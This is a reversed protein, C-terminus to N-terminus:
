LPQPWAAPAGEEERQGGTGGGVGQSRFDGCFTDGSSSTGGHARQDTPESYPRGRGQGQGPIGVRSPPCAAGELESPRHGQQPDEFM